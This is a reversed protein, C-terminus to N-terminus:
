LSPHGMANSSAIAAPRGTNSPHLNALKQKILEWDLLRNVNQLWNTKDLCKNVQLQAFSLQIKRKKIM